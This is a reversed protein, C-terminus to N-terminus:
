PNILKVAVRRRVPETQDAMWVSGTGGEGISELLKYRGGLFAGAESAPGSWASTLLDRSHTDTVDSPSLQRPVAPYGHFWPDSHSALLAEVRRRLEAEGGCAAEVFAARDALDAKGLAAAFITEETM